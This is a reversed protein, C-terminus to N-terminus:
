NIHCQIHEKKWEILTKNMIYLAYEFDISDNHADINNLKFSILGDKGDCKGTRIYRNVVESSCYVEIKDNLEIWNLDYGSLKDKRVKILEIYLRQFEIKNEM